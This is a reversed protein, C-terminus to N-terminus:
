ATPTGSLTGSSALSLGSPLAGATIAYTNPATGGTATFTHGGYVINIAGSAPNSTEIALPAPVIILTYEHSDTVAPTASDTVTVTFTFSGYATPTGSLAGSSALSLGSPLAGATIAYTNPATGGTATFTHGGYVTNITGSAPNSTEIALPAPAIILTYEHSDTVTPTASDTVTVTFTFSGYATPTGSLAGSSALSLGSPLAGVTIAYTNPATGGTATFTHGGYVTNIAGSAPNSTEISLPEPAIILTYEHSDTVAPTASDTVTVTFTFSGYATPTGSLTGGSALSLGSPLAGATITYTNPATGGTATFTHGGYVTNITGSAPNSTEIALPEPAIILTYEHSDTVAPTASDTVTVTFTFSGYATPTGSLAGSSALSLGSPLAGATIAYTNPATGGTATFIHGGYITNITGSAPNSTEIALPDPNGTGQLSFSYTSAGTNNMVSVVSSRIGIGSPDFQVTFTTQNGDSLPGSPQATVTFDSANAGAISVPATLSVNEGHTGENTVTFTKSITGSSALISGFDTDDTVSPTTDGIEIHMENGKVTMIPGIEALTLSIDDFDAWNQGTTNDSMSAVLSIKLKRTKPLLIINNLNAAQWAVGDSDGCAIEKSNDTGVALNGDKDLQEVRIIASTINNVDAPDGKRFYGELTYAVANEDIATAISSTDIIQYLTNSVSGAKMGPFYSCEYVETHALGDNLKLFDGIDQNARTWDQIEPAADGLEFGSNEVLNVGYSIAGFTPIISSTIMLSLLWFSILRSLVRKVRKLAM